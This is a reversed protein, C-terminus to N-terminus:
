SCCVGPVADCLPPGSGGGVSRCCGGPREDCLPPAAGGGRMKCKSTTESEKFSKKQKRDLLLFTKKKRVVWQTKAAMASRQLGSDFHQMLSRIKGPLKESFYMQHPNVFAPLLQLIPAPAVVQKVALEVWRATAVYGGLVRSALSVSIEKEMEETLTGDAPLKMHDAPHVLKHFTEEDTCVWVLNVADQTKEFFTEDHLYNLFDSAGYLHSCQLSTLRLLQKKVLTKKERSEGLVICTTSGLPFSSLQEELHRHELRRLKEKSKLQEKEHDALKRAMGEVPGLVFDRAFDAAQKKLSARLDVQKATERQRASQQALSDLDQLTQSAEAAPEHSSHAQQQESRKREFAAMGKARTRCQFQRRPLRTMKVNKGSGGHMERYKALIKHCFEKAAYKNGDSVAVIDDCPPCDCFVKMYVDKNADSMSSKIGGKCCAPLLM